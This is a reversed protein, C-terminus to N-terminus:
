DEENAKDDEESLINALDDGTLEDVGYSFKEKIIPELKELVDQTIVESTFLRNLDIAENLHAVCLKRSTASPQFYVTVKKGGKEYTHERCEAQDSESLKSFQSETIFKGREIGCTDWSIYEELGIFQNMGKSFSIHFKIPIPKAFRNKNPRATVIIGTQETGEKLKAKGLFLIISAAYEPGQGGGQITKSFLDMSNHSVTGDKLIYHHSDRVTLDYTHIRESIESIKKIKIKKMNKM